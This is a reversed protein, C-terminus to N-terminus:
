IILPDKALDKCVRNRGRRTDTKGQRSGDVRDVLGGDRGLDQNVRTSLAGKNISGIEFPM